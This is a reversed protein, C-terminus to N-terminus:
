LFESSISVFNLSDIVTANIVFFSYLNFTALPLSVYPLTQSSELKWQGRPM